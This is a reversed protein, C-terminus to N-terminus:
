QPQSPAARAWCPLSLVTQQWRQLNAFSAVPMAAMKAHALYSAVSFDALSLRNAVLYTNRALHGDLVRGEKMFTETANALVAEDPTGLGFVKKVVREFLLPECAKSWHALQWSQWRLVDAQDRPSSPWLDSGAQNVLYQMIATSEWLTFDGDVLVPTRGTPNLALFPPQRQEGKSLDVARYDLQTGIHGALARVKWTNPTGAFGYLIM